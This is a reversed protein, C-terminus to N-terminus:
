GGQLPNVVYSGDPRRLGWTLVRQPKGDVIKQGYLRFVTGPAISNIYAQQTAEDKAKAAAIDAAQGGGTIVSPTALPPPSPIRTTQGTANAVDDDLTGTAPNSNFSRNAARQEDLSIQTGTKLMALGIERAQPSQGLRPLAGTILGVDLNSPRSFGVPKAELAARNSLQTMVDQANWRAYDADTGIGLSRLADRVQPYEQAVISAPGVTPLVLELGEITNRLTQAAQGATNYAKLREQNNSIVAQNANKSLEFQNAQATKAMDIAQALKTKRIEAEQTQAAQTAQQIETINAARIAAAQKQYEATADAQKTQWEQELKQMLDADGGQQAAGIMTRYQGGIQEIHSQYATTNADLAPQLRAQIGAVLNNASAQHAAIDPDPDIAPPTGPAPAAPAGAPPGAPPGAPAGAPPAGPAGPAGAPPGAPAGPAAQTAGLFVPDPLGAYRSRLAGATAAGLQPNAAIVKNAGDKGLTTTLLSAVPADDPAAMVAAAPKPGLFHALGLSQGTPKVGAAGLEPANRKALWTIAASGLVPGLAPDTRAALIQQQTMNPFLTPNAKAFDQWTDDTFAGTGVASSTPSKATGELRALITEYSNVDAAGAGSAGAGSAGAGSAGGGQGGIGLAAATAGPGGLKLLALKFAALKIRAEQQQLSLQQQQLGFEATAQQRVAQAQEAATESEQAASLGTALIQGASRPTYSPGAAQMLGIGFNMLARRGADEQQEPALKTIGAPGGAMATGLRAIWSPTADAAPAAPPSPADAPTAPASSGADAPAADSNAAYLALLGGLDESDLEAM